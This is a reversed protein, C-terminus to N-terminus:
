KEIAENPCLQMRVIKEYRENDEYPVKFVESPRFLDFLHYFTSVSFITKM